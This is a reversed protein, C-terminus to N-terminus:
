GIRVGVGADDAFWDRIAAAAEEPADDQWYHGAGHLLTTRSAPLTAAARRRVADPFAPDATGWLLLAPRSSLGSAHVDYDTQALFPRAGVIREPFVHTPRRSAADPYPGRWMAMEREGPKRLTHARPIVQEVFANLRQHAVTGIPGGMVWSFARTRVDSLPWWWTNGAVIRVYRAPDAAAAAMGIPGGWDQVVLTVDQLDLREVLSRIVRAHEEPGFQYGARATSLGMGPYDPAICRFSTRLEAILDRYLFSWTPNGHLLLLVPGEGEDLLHVDCGDVELFRSTHPLLDDDVWPPRAGPTPNMGVAHAMVM